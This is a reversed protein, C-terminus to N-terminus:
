PRGEELKKYMEPDRVKIRELVLDCRVQNRKCSIQLLERDTLNRTEADLSRNFRRHLFEEVVRDVDKDTPRAYCGLTCLLLASLLARKLTMIGGSSFDFRV